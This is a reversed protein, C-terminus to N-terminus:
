LCHEILGNKVTNKQTIINTIVTRCLPCHFSDQTKMIDKICIGCFSHSCNFICIDEKDRTEMCVCCNTEDEKIEITKCIIDRLAIASRM